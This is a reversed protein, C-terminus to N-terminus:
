YKIDNKLITLLNESVPEIAFYRYYSLKAQEAMIKGEKKSLNCWSDILYQTGQLDDDAVIGSGMTQIERWINVQNSILVPKSCALAEVVAIGFNEQHSPLIFADCGYFAGWKADGTLMGPFYITSPPLQAALQQIYQGYETDLGPGAVILVPLSTAPLNGSSVSSTPSSSVASHLSASIRRYAQLLLDVGKKDHIRSLFLLFPRNNLEPCQAAFAQQMATNYPAPETVGLGVVLEHKPNYPAFPQRALLRETECTFLVGTAENVVKSEILKWYAWNRWAKLRRSTARQFYPDLMGHPMVFLRPQKKGMTALKHLARRIAYGPYLWLGHLIICDFRSAHAVLWGALQSSYAWPGRSPGLAHVPFADTALFGADAADLSVVESAVGTAALGAIMTRVAQCVGGAKPDLSAIIHLLHM